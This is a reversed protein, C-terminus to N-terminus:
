PLLSARYGAQVFHHDTTVVEVLNQERMVIM